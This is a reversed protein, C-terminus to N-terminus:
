SMHFVHTSNKIKVRKVLFFGAVHYPIIEFHIVILYDTKCMKTEIELLFTKYIFYFNCNFMSNYDVFKFPKM